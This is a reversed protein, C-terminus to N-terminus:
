CEGMKAKKFRKRERECGVYEEVVLIYIYVKLQMAHNAWLVFMKVKKKELDNVMELEDEDYRGKEKM